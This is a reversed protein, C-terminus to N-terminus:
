NEFLAPKKISCAIGPIAKIGWGEDWRGGQELNRWARWISIVMVIRWKIKSQLTQFIFLINPDSKQEFKQRKPEFKQEFRYQEFKWEFKRGKAIM